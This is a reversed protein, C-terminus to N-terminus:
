IRRQQPAVAISCIVAKRSSEKLEALILGVSEWFLVAGIAVMGGRHSMDAMASRYHPFTFESFGTVEQGSLNKLSYM